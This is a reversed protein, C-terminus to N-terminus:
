RGSRERLEEVVAPWADRLACVRGGGYSHPTVLAASRTGLPRTSASPPNDAKPGSESSRYRGPRGWSVMSRRAESAAPWSESESHMMPSASPCNSIPGNVSRTPRRRGSSTPTTTNASLAASHAIVGDMSSNSSKRSSVPNAPPAPITIARAM